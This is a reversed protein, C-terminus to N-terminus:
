QCRRFCQQLREWRPLFLRAGSWRQPTSYFYWCPSHPNDQASRSRYRLDPPLPRPCRINDSESRGRRCLYLRRQRWPSCICKWRRSCKGSCQTIRVCDPLGWLTRCDSFSCVFRPTKCPFGRPETWYRFRKM